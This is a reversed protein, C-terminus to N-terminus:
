RDVPRGEIPEREDAQAADLGAPAPAPEPKAWRRGVHAGLFGDAHQIRHPM